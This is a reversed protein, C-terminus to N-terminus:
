GWNETSGGWDGAPAPTAPSASWDGTDTTASWDKNDTQGFPAAAPPTAPQIPVAAVAVGAEAPASWQLICGFMM